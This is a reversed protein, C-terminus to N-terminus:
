CEKVEMNAQFWRECMAATHVLEKRIEAFSKGHDQYNLAAKLAEGSEECVIAIQHVQDEPWVPHLIKARILEAKVEPRMKFEEIRTGSIGTIVFRAVTFMWYVRIVILIRKRKGHKQHLNTNLKEM